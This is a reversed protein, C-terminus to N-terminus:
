FVHTRYVCSYHSGIFVIFLWPLNGTDVDACASSCSSDFEAVAEQGAIVMEAWLMM